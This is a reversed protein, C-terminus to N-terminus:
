IEYGHVVPAHDGSCHELVVVFGADPENWPGVLTVVNM